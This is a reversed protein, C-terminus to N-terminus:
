TSRLAKLKGEAGLGHLYFTKANKLDISDRQSLNFLIPKSVGTDLVFSLEVGNVEIPIIILNSIFEFNIRESVDDNLIFNDQANLHLINFSFFFFKIFFYFRRM